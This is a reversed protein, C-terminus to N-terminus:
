QPSDEPYSRRLVEGTPLWAELIYHKDTAIGRLTKEFTVTGAPLPGSDFLPATEGEALLKVHAIGEKGARIQIRMDTTARVLRFDDYSVEGAEFYMGLSVTIRTMGPGTTVPLRFPYWQEPDTGSLYERKLFVPVLFRNVMSGAYFRADVGRGDPGQGHVYCLLKGSALRFWGTLLYDTQPKVEVTQNWYGSMASSANEVHLCKGTRGDNRWTASFNNPMATTFRWGGPAGESGEEFGGNDLLNPVPLPPESTICLATEGTGMALVLLTM